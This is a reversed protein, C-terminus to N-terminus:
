LFWAPWDRHKGGALDGTTQDDIWVAFKRPQCWYCTDFGFQYRHGKQVVLEIRGAVHGFDHVYNSYEVVHKGPLVRAAKYGLKDHSVCKDADISTVMDPWDSWDIVAMSDAEQDAGVPDICVGWSVTDLSRCSLVSLVLLVAALRKV